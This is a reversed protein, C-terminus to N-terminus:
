TMTKQSPQFTNVILSSSKKSDWKSNLNVYDMNPGKILWDLEFAQSYSNVKHKNM